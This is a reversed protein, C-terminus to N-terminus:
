SWGRRPWTPPASRSSISWAERARRARLVLGIGRLVEIREKNDLAIHLEGPVVFGNIRYASAPDLTFGRVSFNEYYGIAPM